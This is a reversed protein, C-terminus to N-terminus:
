SEKEQSLSKIEKELEAVRNKWYFEMQLFRQSQIELKESLGSSNNKYKRVQDELDFIEQSHTEKLEKIINEHSEISICGKGQKLDEVEQLAEDREDWAYQLDRTYKAWSVPPKTKCNDELFPDNGVLELFSENMKDYREESEYLKMFLEFAGITKNIKWESTFQRKLASKANNKLKLHTNNVVEFIHKKDEKTLESYEM